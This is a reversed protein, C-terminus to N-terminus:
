SNVYHLYSGIIYKSSEIPKCGQHLWPWMPPFILLSGQKCPSVFPANPFLTDGKKNTPLYLFFVLFRSLNKTTDVDVHPPFEDSDNPLYRKMRIPELSYTVPWQNKQIKCDERYKELYETFLTLLIQSEEKWEVEFDFKKAFNIQTFLPKDEPWSYHQNKLSEFKEIINECFTKDIVDQYVRIYNDM